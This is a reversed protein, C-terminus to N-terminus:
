AESAVLEEEPTDQKVWSKPESGVIWFLTKDNLYPAFDTPHDAIYNMCKGEYRSHFRLGHCTFPMLKSYNTYDNAFVDFTEVQYPLKSVGCANLRAWMEKEHKTLNKNIHM